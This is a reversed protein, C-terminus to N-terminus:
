ALTINATRLVGDTGRVSIRLNTNTTLTFTMQSNLLTAATGTLTLITDGERTIAFREASVGATNRTNIRLRGGVNGAAATGSALVEIGVATVPNSGDSGTIFQRYLFDGDLVASQTNHTAGRSKVTTLTPGDVDASFRALSIGANADTGSVHLNAGTGSIVSPGISLIGDRSLNMRTAVAGATNRTVFRFRGGVNGTSATGEALVELSAANVLSTGDSGTFNATFLLDNSLVVGQVNHGVGRSKGFNLATGSANNSFRAISLSANDGGSSINFLGGLGSTTTNAGLLLIGDSGRLRMSETSARQWVFDGFQENNFILGGTGRHLIQTNSNPGTNKIIRFNYDAAVESVLDIYSAGDATRNLGIELFANGAGANSGLTITGPINLSSSANISVQVWRSPDSAPDITSSGPTTSNRRYNQFNSPSFVVTGTAYTSGSVWPVVGNFALINNYASQVSAEIATLEGVLENASAAFQNLESAFLPLAGLFQDARSPFNVPDSRSPPNALPTILSITM